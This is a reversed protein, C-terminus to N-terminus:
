AWAIWVLSHQCADACHVRLGVIVPVQIRRDSGLPLEFTADHAALAATIRAANAHVM